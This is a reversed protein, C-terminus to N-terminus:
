QAAALEFQRQLEVIEPVLAELLLVPTSLPRRLLMVRSVGFRMM